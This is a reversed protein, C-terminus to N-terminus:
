RPNHDDVQGHQRRKSLTLILYTGVASGASYALIAGISRSHLYAEYILMGLATISFSLVVALRVRGASVARYDLTILGDMLFGALFYGLLVLM